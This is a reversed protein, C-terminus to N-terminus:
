KEELFWNIPISQEQNLTEILRENLFFSLDALWVSDPRTFFKPLPSVMPYQESHVIYVLSRFESKIEDGITNVLICFLAYM